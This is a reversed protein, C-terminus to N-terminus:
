KIVILIFIACYLKPPWTVTKTNRTFCFALYGIPSLHFDSCMPQDLCSCKIVCTSIQWFLELCTEYRSRILRLCRRETQNTKLTRVGTVWLNKTRLPFLLLDFINTYMKNHQIWTHKNRHANSYYLLYDWIFFCRSLIMWPTSLQFVTYVSYCYNWWKSIYWIVSVNNTIYCKTDANPDEQVRM